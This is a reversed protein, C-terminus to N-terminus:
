VRKWWSGRRGQFSGDSKLLSARLLQALTDLEGVHFEKLFVLTQIGAMQFESALHRLEAKPDPVPAESLKPVVLADREVRIELGKMTQALDQLSDYTRSLSELNKPHNHQYLRKNHLLILLVRLAGAVAAAGVGPDSPLVAFESIPTPMDSALDM